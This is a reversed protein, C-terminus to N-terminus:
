RGQCGTDISMRGTIKGGSSVLFRGGSFVITDESPQVITLLPVAFLVVTKEPPLNKTELPPLIVPRIDISLPAVTEAEAPEIRSKSRVCVEAPAAESMLLRERM